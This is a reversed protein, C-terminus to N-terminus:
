RYNDTLALWRKVQAEPNENLTIDTVLSVGDAGAALVAPARQLNLGGIAILHLKSGLQTRWQAVRELGQPAWPMKKLITPYIPGLAIYDPNLSLARELENESHTSIGLQIGARKIAPIDATDLDEQGLHVYNCQLEIALQWYDNIILQCNAKECLHKATIIEQRLQATQQDKMRLQVLRIGLPLLRSLWATSDFIPYFPDFKHTNTM